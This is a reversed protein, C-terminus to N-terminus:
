IINHMFCCMQKWVTLQSINALHQLWERLVNHMVFTGHRTRQGESTHGAEVSPREESYSPQLDQYSAVELCAGKWPVGPGVSCAAPSHGLGETLQLSVLGGAQHMHGASDVALFPALGPLM